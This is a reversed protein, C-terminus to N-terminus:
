VELQEESVPVRVEQTSLDEASTSRQGASREDIRDGEMGEQLEAKSLRLIVDEGRISAVDAIRCTYDRPFFFGKEVVLYDPRVEAIRGLKDGDSGFVEAGVMVNESASSWSV